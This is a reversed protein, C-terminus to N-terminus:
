PEDGSSLAAYSISIRLEGKSRPEEDDAKMEGVAQDFTSYDHLPMILHMPSSDQKLHSLVM